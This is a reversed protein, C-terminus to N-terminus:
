PALMEGLRREVNPQLPGVRRGEAVAAEPSLGGHRSAYLAWVGAVRNGSSCHLLVKGNGSGALIKALADADGWTIGAGAVPLHFYQMGNAAVLERERDAGESSPRFNVITRYGAASYAAFAADDPQGTVHVGEAAVWAVAAGPVAPAETGGVVAAVGTGPEVRARNSTPALCGTRPRLCCGALAIPLAIGIVLAPLAARAPRRPM